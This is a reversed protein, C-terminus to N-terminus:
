YVLAMKSILREHEEGNEMTYLRTTNINSHGLIDALRGLDKEILYFRRAFLHRLNHPFVKSREVGAEKCLAKMDAWIQHRNLPNGHKSLFLPGHTIHQQAAYRTLLKRLQQPIFITRIKGKNTVQARGTHLAEATVFQLESVRIGTSGITQMILNLRQNKQAKAAALLRKYEKHTLDKEPALYTDQQVKLSKVQLGQFNNYRFFTRLSSLMSNVSTPKHTTQLYEKYEIIEQRDLPRNGLHRMFAHVDRLYRDITSASLEEARLQAAFVGLARQVSAASVAPAPAALAPFVALEHPAEM